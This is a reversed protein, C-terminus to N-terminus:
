YVVFTGRLPRHGVSNSVYPFSGRTIAVFSLSGRHKPLIPKSVKGLISFKATSSSRNLISFSVSSGRSASAGRTVTIKSNTIVVKIPVVVAPATTVRHGSALSAGVLVLVFGAAAFAAVRPLRSSLIVRRRTLRLVPRM